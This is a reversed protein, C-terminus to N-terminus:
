AQGIRRAAEQVQDMRRKLSQAYVRPVCEGCIQDALLRLQGLVQVLTESRRDPGITELLLRLEVFAAALGALILDLVPEDPPDQPRYLLDHITRLEGAFVMAAGEVRVALRNSETGARQWLDAIAQLETLVVHLNSQVRELRDEYALRHIEATLQEQRRSVFKSVVIGFLLLGAIGEAIAVTRVAGVPVVDGYGVSTATVFSFYIATLFGTWTPAVRGAAGTLGTWSTWLSAWFVIGCAVVMVLYFLFLQQTSVREVLDVIKVSWDHRSLRRPQALVPAAPEPTTAAPGAAPAPTGDSELDFGHNGWDELGGPYYRARHYGLDRLLRV